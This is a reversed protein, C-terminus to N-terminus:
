ILIMVPAEVIQDCKLKEMQALYHRSYALLFSFNPKNIRKSVKLVLHVWKSYYTHECVTVVM